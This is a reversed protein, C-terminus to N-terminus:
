NKPAPPPPSTLWVFIWASGSTAKMRRIIEDSSMVEYSGPFNNDLCVAINQDFHVCNTMHSIGSRYRPSYGYTICAMRGTKSILTMAQRIKNVDSTEIQLFAPTSVGKAKAYRPIQDDNRQPWGGGRERDAWYDRVGRFDEMCQYIAAHEQSSWVCMGAGDVKSGINKMHEYAPLDCTFEKGKYEAVNVIALNGGRQEVNASIPLFQVIVFLIASAPIILKPM